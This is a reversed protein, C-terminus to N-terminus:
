IIFSAYKIRQVDQTFHWGHKWLLVMCAMRLPHIKVWVLPLQVQSSVHCPFNICHETERNTDPMKTRWCPQPSSHKGTTQTTLAGQLCKPHGKVLFLLLPFGNNGSWGAASLYTYIIYIHAQSLLDHDLTPCVAEFDFEWYATKLRVM